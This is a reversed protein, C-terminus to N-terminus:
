GKNNISDSAYRGSISRWLLHPSDENENTVVSDFATDGMNQLIINLVETKLKEEKSRAADTANKTLLTSELCYNWLGKHKLHVKMRRSWQAYNEDNLKTIGKAKQNEDNSNTM